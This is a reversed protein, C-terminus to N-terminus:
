ETITANYKAAVAAVEKVSMIGDIINFTHFPEKTGRIRYTKEAPRPPCVLANAYRMYADELEEYTLKKKDLWTQLSQTMYAKNFKAELKGTKPNRKLGPTKKLTSGAKRGRKKPIYASERSDLDNLYYRIKMKTSVNKKGTPAVIMEDGSLMCQRMASCCTILTANGENLKGMLEKASCELYSDGAQAATTKLNEILSKYDTIKAGM